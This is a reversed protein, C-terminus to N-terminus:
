KSSIQRNKPVAIATQLYTRRIIKGFFFIFFVGVLQLYRVWGSKAPVDIASLPANHFHVATVELGAYELLQKLSKRTFHHVHHASYLRDYAVRCRLRKLFRAIAYLLSDNNLTMVIVVGRDSCYEALCRAFSVIDIVHEITALSVVVDFRESLQEVSVDLRHYEIRAAEDNHNEVLDIGVLKLDERRKRVFRLFDGNGCGVDLTSRATTPIRDVIWSFLSLNPNTFWNRHTERFYDESYFEPSNISNPESFVHSCSECLLLLAEPHTGFEAVTTGCIPCKHTM